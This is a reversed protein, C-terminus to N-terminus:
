AKLVVYSEELAGQQVFFGNELLIQSDMVSIWFCGSKRSYGRVEDPSCPKPCRREVSASDVSRCPFLAFLGLGCM